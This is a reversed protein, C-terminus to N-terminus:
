EFVLLRKKSLEPFMNVLDHQEYEAFPRGKVPVLHVVPPSRSFHGLIATEMEITARTAYSLYSVYWDRDFNM